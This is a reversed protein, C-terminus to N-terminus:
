RKAIINGTLAYESFSTIETEVLDGVSFWPKLCHATVIEDIEPADQERRLIVEGKHIEDVFMKERTGLLGTLFEKRIELHAERVDNIRRIKEEDTVTEQYQDGAYTGVEHSYRFLALKDIRWAKIAQKIADVHEHTETPFGLIFSTRIEMAPRVQRAKHIIEDFLSVDTPRKMAKLIDPAVHQFPIDLYSVLKPYKTWLDLLDLMRKDPFLYQLRIWHVEEKQSYFAIIKELNEVGQSITDQSVLIVERIPRDGRLVKEDAWQKELNAQDYTLLKGRIKPIICFACHRDCGQAIRFWAYAHKADQDPSFTWRSDASHNKLEINFKESLLFPVEHYRQTGLTFDLEPIDKKVADSFREVFCGILGVKLDKKRKEKIKLADFVTQITEEQAERIFSCSNIFLFDAKELKGAERFGSRLLASRMKRSDVKNKPCGLTEIHFSISDSLVSRDKNKRM